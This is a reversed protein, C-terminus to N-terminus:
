SVEDTECVSSLKERQLLRIKFWAKIQKFTMKAFRKPLGIFFRYDVRM